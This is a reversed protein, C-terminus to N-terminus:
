GTRCVPLPQTPMDLTHLGCIIRHLMLKREEVSSAGFTTNWPHAAPPAAPPGPEPDSARAIADAVPLGATAPSHQGYELATVRHQVLAMGIAIGSSFALATCFVTLWLTTSM